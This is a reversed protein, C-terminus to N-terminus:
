GSGEGMRHSLPVTPHSLSFRRWDQLSNQRKMLVVRFSQVCRLGGILSTGHRVVDGARDARDNKEQGHAAQPRLQSEDPLPFPSKPPALRKCFVRSGDERQVLKQATKEREEGEKQIDSAQLGEIM